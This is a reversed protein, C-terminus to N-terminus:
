RVMGSFFPTGESYPHCVIVSPSTGFQHNAVFDYGFSHESYRALSEMVKQRSADTIWNLRGIQDDPGWPSPKVKLERPLHFECM